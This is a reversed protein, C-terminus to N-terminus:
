WRCSKLDYWAASRLLAAVKINMLIRNQYIKVSIYVHENQEKLGSANKSIKERIISESTLLSSQLALIISFLLIFEICMSFAWRKLCEGQDTRSSENTFQLSINFDVRHCSFFVIVMLLEFLEPIRM